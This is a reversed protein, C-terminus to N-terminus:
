LIQKITDAIVKVEEDTLEDFLPLRLIANAWHETVQLSSLGYKETYFTAMHLPQYHFVAMIGAHNLRELLDNREEAGPCEIFFISGNHEAAPMPSPCSYGQPLQGALLNHYLQWQSRRRKILEDARDLQCSLWAAQIESMLFSSGIDVWTYKNIEGRAFAARNTGKEWVIEARTRMDQDNVILCGGEGCGIVKTEHFSIAALHGFSGLPKGLYSAGYGMAADEVVLLNYKKALELLSEMECAVGAYHMIVLVKTRESILSAVHEARMNPYDADVDAFVVKAGRLMFANATSTFTFSPMIVEDGPGVGCLIAAMDLAATGSNTLFAKGGISEEILSQCYQTYYGNGSIKGRKICDQIRMWELGSIAPKNFPIM